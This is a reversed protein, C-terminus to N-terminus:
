EGAFDLKWDSQIANRGEFEWEFGHEPLTPRNVSAKAVYAPSGPVTSLALRSATM